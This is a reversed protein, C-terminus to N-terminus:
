MEDSKQTTFMDDRMLCKTTKTKNANKSLHNETKGRIVSKICLNELIIASHNLM